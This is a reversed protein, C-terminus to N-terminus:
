GSPAEVSLDQGLVEPVAPAHRQLLDAICEGATSPAPLVCPSHSAQVVLTNSETNHHVPMPLMVLCTPPRQVGCWCAGVQISSLCNRLAVTRMSDLHATSGVISPHRTTCCINWSYAPNGSGQNASSGHSKLSVTQWWSRGKFVRLPQRM